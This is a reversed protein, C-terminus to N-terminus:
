KHQQSEKVKFDMMFASTTNPDFDYGRQKWYAAREIDKVKMDMMFASTTKPDFSYGRQKWYAAREIDKVKMDMMFASTTKPDFSHGRQKWYAAREIDKVKMDMMFASTTAPDFSYGREKWYRAREEDRAKMEAMFDNTAGGVVGVGTSGLTYGGPSYAGTTTGFPVGPTITGTNPNYNGPFSYNNSLVGDPASRWHPMVYTGNRTTYGRVYVRGQSYASGVLIVLLLTVGTCKLACRM